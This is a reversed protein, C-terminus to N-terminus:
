SMVEITSNKDLGLRNVTDRFFRSDKSLLFRTKGEGSLDYQKLFQDAVFYAPDILEVSGMGIDAMAKEFVNRVIPYHTCGLILKDCGGRKVRGLLERVVTEVAEPASGQEIVRVLDESAYTKIYKGIMAFGEQYGGSEVTVKTAILAIDADKIGEKNKMDLVTPGIMETISDPDIDLIRLTSLLLYASMSNCANIIHTAGNTKLMKLGAITLQEIEKKSSNGYPINKIDGFYVVDANKNKERLAKLM